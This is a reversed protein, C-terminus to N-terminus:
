VDLEVVVSTDAAFPMQVFQYWAEFAQMFVKLSCRWQPWDPHGAFQQHDIEVHDPFVMVDFANGTWGTKPLQGSQVKRIDELFRQCSNETHLDSHLASALYKWIPHEYNKEDGVIEEARYFSPDDATNPFQKWHFHLKM